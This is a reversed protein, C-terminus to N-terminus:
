EDSKATIYLSRSFGDFFMEDKLTPNATEERKIGKKFSILKQKKDSLTYIDYKM